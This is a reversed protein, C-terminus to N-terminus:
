GSLRGTLRLREQLIGIAERAAARREQPTMSRYAKRPLAGTTQLKIRSGPKRGCPFKPAATGGGDGGGRAGHGRLDGSQPPAFVILTVELDPYNRDLLFVPPSLDQRVRCAM